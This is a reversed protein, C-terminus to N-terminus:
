EVDGQKITTHWCGALFALVKTRLAAQAAPDSAVKARLAAVAAPGAAVASAVALSVAAKTPKSAKPLVTAAAVSANGGKGPAPSTAVCEKKHKKWAKKQCEASCYWVSKCKSCRKPKNCTKGCQDCAKAAAPAPPQPPVAAASARPVPADFEEAGMASLPTCSKENQHDFLGHYLPLPRHSSM